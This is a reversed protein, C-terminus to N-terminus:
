RAPSVATLLHTIARWRTTSPSGARGSVARGSSAASASSSSRRAAQGAGRGARQARHGHAPAHRRCRGRGGARHGGGVGQVGRRPLGHGPAVDRRAGRRRPVRLDRDGVRVAARRTSPRGEGDDRRPAQHDAVRSDLIEQKRAPSWRRDAIGTGALNVVADVGDIADGSLEGAAPDWSVDDGNAPRRVLRVVRHGASRLHEVLATGILGSSGTVVIELPAAAM